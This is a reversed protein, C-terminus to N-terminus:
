RRYIADIEDADEKEVVDRRVKLAPTLEGGAVSFDWSLIVDRSRIRFARVQEARPVARNVADVAHQVEAVLELDERLTGVTTDAPRDRDM